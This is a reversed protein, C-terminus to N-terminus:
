VWPVGRPRGAPSFIDKIRYFGNSGFTNPDFENIKLDARLASGGSPSRWKKYFDLTNFFINKEQNSLNNLLRNTSFSRGKPFGFSKLSLLNNLIM